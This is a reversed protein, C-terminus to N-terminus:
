KLVKSLVLAVAAAGVLAIGVKKAMDGRPTNMVAPPPAPMPAAAAPSASPMVAPAPPPPPPPKNAPAPGFVGLSAAQSELVTLRSNFLELKASEGPAGSVSHLFVKWESIFSVWQGLWTGKAPDTVDIKTIAVKSQLANARGDVSLVKEADGAAGVADGAVGLGWSLPNYQMDHYGWM